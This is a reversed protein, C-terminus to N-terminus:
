AMGMRPGEEQSTASEYVFRVVEDRVHLFYYILKSLTSKGSAQPGIFVLFRAVDVTADQIPGFNHVILKQM